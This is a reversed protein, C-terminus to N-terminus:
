TKPVAPVADKMMAKSEQPWRAGTVTEEPSVARQGSPGPSPFFDGSAGQDTASGRHGRSRLPSRSRLGNAERGQQPPAEAQPIHGPLTPETSRPAQSQM